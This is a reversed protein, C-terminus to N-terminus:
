CVEYKQYHGYFQIRTRLSQQQVFCLVDAQSTLADIQTPMITNLLIKYLLFVFYAFCYAFYIYIHLFTAFYTFM